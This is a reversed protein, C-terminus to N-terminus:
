PTLSLKMCTASAPCLEQFQRTHRIAEPVRARDIVTWGRAAFYDAATTTLLYMENLGRQRARALLHRCLAAGAGRSRCADDVALSRLMGIPPMIEMGITGVIRGGERAVLFNALHEGVDETPLDGAQLLATIVAMDEPVAKEIVLAM